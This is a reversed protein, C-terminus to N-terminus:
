RHRHRGLAGGRALMCPLSQTDSRTEADPVVRNLLIEPGVTTGGIGSGSIPFQVGSGSYKKGVEADLDGLGSARIRKISQPAM